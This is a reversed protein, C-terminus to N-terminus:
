IESGSYRTESGWPESIGRNPVASRFLLSSTWVQFKDITKRHAEAVDMIHVYDRIPSGDTTSYDQGFINIVDSKGVAVQVFINTVDSQCV